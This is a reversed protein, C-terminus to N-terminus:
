AERVSSRELDFCGPHNAGSGALESPPQVLEVHVPSPLHQPRPTHLDHYIPARFVCSFSDDM